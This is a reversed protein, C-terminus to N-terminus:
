VLEDRSQRILADRWEILQGRRWVSSKPGLKIPPEFTGQKIRRYIETPSLKTFSCVEPLKVFEDYDSSKLVSSKDFPTEYSAKIKKSSTAM